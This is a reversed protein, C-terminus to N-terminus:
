IESPVPEPGRSPSSQVVAPLTFEFTAGQGLGASTVWIRGGNIEIIRKVLALGMGSGESKPDLKEFLGFVKGVYRPEIGVGNDKVFFVTEGDIPRVGIEIQPRSQSGMFKCANEILNQWIEVLRSRDGVLVVNAEEVRVEVAAAHIRGAVLQVAEAALEQFTSRVPPNSRHGVSALKLLEDLLQGMKDAATHMFAMDQKARAPDPRALDQELYGLFTKITVLPSKLDHSVTYTFRELEANKARLEKEQRIRETIDRAIKSAGIIAGDADRIPSLTLSVPVVRGSKALRVTEFNEVREGRRLRAMIDAEQTKGEPPIIRDVPQGIMEGAAYGLLREAGANWSTITRDLNKGIIADESSDVIAALKSRAAEAELRTRYFRVRQQRWMVGVGAGAGALLLCVFLITMWLRERLPAYVESLGMRAVLFWPSDPVKRLAALAPSGRYDRGEFLGEQGLAAQVSPLEQRDLSYRLRLATNTQFRLENLFVVENGERRVLLTEATESPIPWHSVFPYLFQNPDCGLALVGIVQGGDLVPALLTLYIRQNREDRYFDLFTVQKSRLVEPLRQVIMASVGPAGGGSARVGGGPDLLSVQDYQDHSGFNELWSQLLSRADMDAPTALARRVLTAFARNGFFGAADELREARYRVLERTKLDAVASLQRGVEARYYKEYNAYYFHGSTVIGAGLLLFIGLLAAGPITRRGTLRYLSWFPGGALPVLAAGLAVFALLTSIAPPIFRGGYLLPTGYLYAM